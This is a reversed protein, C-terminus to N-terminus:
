QKMRRTLIRREEKPVEDEEKKSSSDIVNKLTKSPNCSESEKPINVMRRKRTEILQKRTQM